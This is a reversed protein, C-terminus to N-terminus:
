KTVEKKSVISKVIKKLPEYKEFAGQFLSVIGMSFAHLYLDTEGFEKKQGIVIYSEYEKELM